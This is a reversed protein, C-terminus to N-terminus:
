RGRRWPLLSGRAAPDGHSNGAETQHEIIERLQEPLAAVAEAIKSAQSLAQTLQEVNERAQSFEALADVTGRLQGLTDNLEVLRQTAPDLGDRLFDGLKGA